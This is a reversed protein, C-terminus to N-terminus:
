SRAEDGDAGSVEVTDTLGPLVGCRMGEPVPDVAGGRFVPSATYHPQSPTYLAM